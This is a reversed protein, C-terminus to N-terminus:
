KRFVMSAVAPLIALAAGWPFKKVPVPPELPGVNVGVTDDVVYSM